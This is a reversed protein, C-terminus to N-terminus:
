KYPTMFDRDLDDRPIKESIKKKKELELVKNIYKSIMM